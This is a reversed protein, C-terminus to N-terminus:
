NVKRKYKKNIFLMFVIGGVSGTVISASCCCVGILIFFILTATGYFM